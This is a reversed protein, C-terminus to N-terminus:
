RPPRPHLGLVQLSVTVRHQRNLELVLVTAAEVYRANRLPGCDVSRLQPMRDILDFVLRKADGSDGCVFADGRLPHSLDSLHKASLTKFASVVDAHPLLDAVWEAASPAPLALPEFGDKTRAVPNVVEIVVKGRTVAGLDGLTPELGAAPLCVCVVDAARAADSNTAALIRDSGSPIQSRIAAAASEARSSSRSGVLVQEGASAFRLALGQGESGTGGLIGIKRM